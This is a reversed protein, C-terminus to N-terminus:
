QGMVTKSDWQGMVTKSDWQGMLMISDWLCLVTRVTVRNHNRNRNHSLPVTFRNHSLLVSYSPITQVYMYYRIYVYM